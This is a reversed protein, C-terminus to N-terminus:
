KPQVISLSIAKVARSTVFQGKKQGVDGCVAILRAAM